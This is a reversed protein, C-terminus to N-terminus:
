IRLTHENDPLKKKMVTYIIASPFPNSKLFSDACWEALPKEPYSLLSRLLIRANEPEAIDPVSYKHGVVAACCSIEMENALIIEPALTMSNVQAGLQRWMKIKQKQKREQAVSM